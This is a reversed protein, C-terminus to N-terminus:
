IYFIESPGGCFKAAEMKFGRKKTYGAGLLFALPSWGVGCNEFVSELMVFLPELHKCELFMHFITETEQSFPCLESAGKKVKSVFSNAAIAGHLIRWQLDGSRKNLPPKYFVCWLPKKSDEVKLKEGYLIQEEM